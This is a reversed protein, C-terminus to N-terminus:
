AYSLVMERIMAFAGVRISRPTMVFLFFRVRGERDHTICAKYGCVETGMSYRPGKKKDKPAPETQDTGRVIGKLEIGGAVNCRFILRSM